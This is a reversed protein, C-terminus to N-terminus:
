NDIRIPMIVAEQKRDQNKIIFPSLEGYYQLHIVEHPRWKTFESGSLADYFYRAELHLSWEKENISGGNNLDLQSFKGDAAYILQLTTKTAKLKLAASKRKGQSYIFGIMAKLDALHEKELWILIESMPPTVPIVKNTDPIQTDSGDVAHPKEIAELDTIRHMRHGDTAVLSSIDRFVKTCFPRGSKRDLAKELWNFHEM